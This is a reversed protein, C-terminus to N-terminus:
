ESPLVCFRVLETAHLEEAAAIEVTLPAPTAVLTLGPVVFMIAVDPVIVPEPLKCIPGGASTEKDTL